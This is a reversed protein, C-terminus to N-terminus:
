EEGECEGDNWADGTGAVNCGTRTCRAGSPSWRHHRWSEPLPDNESRVWASFGIDFQGTNDLLFVIEAEEGYRERMVAYIKKPDDTQHPHWGNEFYGNRQENYREFGAGELAEHGWVISPLCRRPDNIAWELWTDLDVHPSLWEGDEDSWIISPQWSYSDGTTRYALRVYPWNGSGPPDERQTDIIAWEDYFVFEVGRRELMAFAKPYHHEYGHLQSDYTEHHITLKGCPCWHDAIVIMALDGEAKYGPEGYEDAIEFERNEYDYVRQLFEAVARRTDLM